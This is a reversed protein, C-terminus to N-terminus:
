LCCFKDSNLKICCMMLLPSVKGDWCSPFFLQARVGNPCPHDPLQKFEGGAGSGNYDLCVFSVAQQEPRTANFSRLTPTGALMAFGDPFPHITEGNHGRFLYYILAGSHKVQSFQGSKEHFYITQYLLFTQSNQM